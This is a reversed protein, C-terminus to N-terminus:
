KKKGLFDPWGKWKIKYVVQPTKPINDPFNKKNILNKWDAMSSINMLRAYNKSENFSRYLKTGTGL